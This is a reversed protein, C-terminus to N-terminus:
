LRINKFKLNQIVNSDLKSMISPISILFSYLALLRNLYFLQQKNQIHLFM